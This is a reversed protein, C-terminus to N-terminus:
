SGICIVKLVKYEGDICPNDDYYECLNGDETQAAELEIVDRKHLRCYSHDHGPIVVEASPDLKQLIQILERNTM